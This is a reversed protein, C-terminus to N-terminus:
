WRLIRRRCRLRPWSCPGSARWRCPHHHHHPPPLSSFNALEGRCRLSPSGRRAGQCGLAHRPQHATHRAGRGRPTPSFRSSAEQVLPRTNRALHAIWDSSVADSLNGLAPPSPLQTKACATAPSVKLWGGPHTTARRVCPCPSRGALSSIRWVSCKGDVNDALRGMDMGVTRAPRATTPATTSAATATHALHGCPWAWGCPSAAGDSSQHKGLADHGSECAAHDCDRGWCGQV